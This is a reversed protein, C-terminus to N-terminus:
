WEFYLKVNKWDQPIIVTQYQVLKKIQSLHFLSEAQPVFAEARFLVLQM